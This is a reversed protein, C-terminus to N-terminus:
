SSDLDNVSENPRLHTCTSENAICKYLVLSGFVFLLSKSHKRQYSRTKSAFKQNLRKLANRNQFGLVILPSAKKWHYFDIEILNLGDLSKQLDISSSFTSKRCLFAIPENSNWHVCELLTERYFVNSWVCSRFVRLFWEYFKRHFIFDNWWEFRLRVNRHKPEFRQFHEDDFYAIHVCTTRVLKWMGYVCRNFSEIFLCLVVYECVWVHVTHNFIASCQM